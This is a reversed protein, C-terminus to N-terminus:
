SWDKNSNNYYEDIILARTLKKTGEKWGIMTQFMLEEIKKRTLMIKM